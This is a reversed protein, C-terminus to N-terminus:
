RMALPVKRPPPPFAQDLEDLDDQTLKSSLDQAAHNQRIHEPSAAKPIAVLGQRLVWALAIQVPTADRQAAIKVLAPNAIMGKREQTSHEIPSYAMLPMKRERCWPLLDWEIGRQVLNYLVQNTVIEEGGPLRCTEEMESVDFNSVGYDRILGDAKLGQFAELTESIPVAGRWHLLHLDLYDTGLRRLSRKCAEPTGRLTANHPYVKSVLFVQERRGAIAERILEEAAGEGYMEATDILVMGLDLELRLAALEAKRRSANEGIGWTGQGLVPIERGSPMPVTKTSTM